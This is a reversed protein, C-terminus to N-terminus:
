MSLFLSVLVSFIETRKEGSKIRKSTSSLIDNLPSWERTATQTIWSRKQEARRAKRNISCVGIFSSIRTKLLQYISFDGVFSISSFYQIYNHTKKREISYIYHTKKRNLKSWDNLWKTTSSVIISHRKPTNEKLHPPCEQTGFTQRRPQVCTMTAISWVSAM